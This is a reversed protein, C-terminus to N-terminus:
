SLTEDDVFHTVEEYDGCHANSKSTCGECSNIRGRKKCFQVMTPAGPYAEKRMWFVKGSGLVQKKASYNDSYDLHKCATFQM